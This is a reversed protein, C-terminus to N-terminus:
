LNYSIQIQCHKDQKGDQIEILAKVRHHAKHEAAPLVAALGAPQVAKGDNDGGPILRPHDPLQQLAQAPLIVRRLQQVQIHYGVVAGVVGGGHGAPRSGKDIFPKVVYMLALAVGHVIEEAAQLLLSFPVVVAIEDKVRVIQHVGIEDPLHVAGKVPAIVGQGAVAVGLVEGGVPNGGSIGDPKQPLCPEQVEGAGQQAGVAM